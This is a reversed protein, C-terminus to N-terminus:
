LKGELSPVIKFYAKVQSTESKKTDYKECKNVEGIEIEESIEDIEIEGITEREELSSEKKDLYKQMFYKGNLIYEDGRKELALRLENNKRENYIEDM